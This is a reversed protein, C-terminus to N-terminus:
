GEIEIDFEGVSILRREVTIDFRFKTKLLAELFQWSQREGAKLSGQLLVKQVYDLDGHRAAVLPKRWFLRWLQVSHDDIGSSVLEGGPSVSLCQVPTWHDLKKISEGGPLRWLRITADAGGSILIKGDPTISLCAVSDRHGVLMKLFEGEPLRWLRMTTDWSGSVLLKGEPSVSLCSIRDIHGELTKLLKAGPFGWLKVTGDDSGSALIKGDPSIALCTIVNRHGELTKVSEGRPVDWLRVTADTGGSVLIQGDLAISSCTIWGKHGKLTELPQGAPLQWLRLTADGSGSILTKGDPSISLCTISNSHGELIKLPEGGPLSWLRVTADGSGSILTKGNPNIALCTVSNRHGELIELPEGGPLSWVLVARDRSGTALIKGDPSISFCNVQDTHEKLVKPFEGDILTFEKGEQPCLGILEEWLNMEEQSKLQDGRDRLILVMEAAWELPALFVLQHMEEWRGERRLGKVVVEWEAEGMEEVRLRKGYGMLVKSWINSRGSRRAVRLFRERVREDAAAYGQRLLPREEQFDLIEYNKWQETLFYFLARRAEDKPGYDRDRVIQLLAHNRFNGFVMLYDCLAEIAAPNQLRSFTAAAIKRVEPDTHNALTDALIHVASRIGALAESALKEAARRRTRKGILPLGSYLKRHQKELGKEPM